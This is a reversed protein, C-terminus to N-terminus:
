LQKLGKSTLLQFLTERDKQNLYQFKSVDPICEENMKAVFCLALEPGQKAKIEKVYFGKLVNLSVPQNSNYMISDEQVILLPKQLLLVLSLIVGMGLIFLALVVLSLSVLWNKNIILLAVLLFALTKPHYFWAKVAEKILLKPDRYFAMGDNKFQKM